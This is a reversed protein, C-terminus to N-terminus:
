VEEINIKEDYWIKVFAGKKKLDVLTPLFSELEPEIYNWKALTKNNTGKLEVNASLYWTDSGKPLFFPKKDQSIGLNSKLYYIFLNFSSYPYEQDKLYRGANVLPIFADVTKVIKTFFLTKFNRVKIPIEAKRAVSYTDGILISEVKSLDVYIEKAM